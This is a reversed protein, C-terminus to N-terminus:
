LDKLCCQILIPSFMGFGRGRKLMRGISQAELLIVRFPSAM